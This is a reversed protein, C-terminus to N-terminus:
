FYTARNTWSGSKTQASTLTGDATADSWILKTITWDTDDDSADANVNEGAYTPNGGANYIFKKIGAETLYNYDLIM